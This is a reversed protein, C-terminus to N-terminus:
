EEPPSDDGYKNFAHFIMCLFVYGILLGVFTMVMLFLFWKSPNIELMTGSFLWYIVGAMLSIFVIFILSFFNRFDYDEMDLNSFLGYPRPRIRRWGFHVLFYPWVFTAVALLGCAVFGWPVGWEELVTEGHGLYVTALALIFFMMYIFGIVRLNKDRRRIIGGFRSDSNKAAENIRKELVDNFDDKMKEEKRRKLIEEIHATRM